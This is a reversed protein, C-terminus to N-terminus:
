SVVAAQRSSRESVRLFENAKKLIATTQEPWDRERSRFPHPALRILGAAAQLMIAAPDGAYGSLFEQWLQEADIRADRLGDRELHAVFTGADSAPDGLGAEDFDIIGIGTVDVVVQKAYFDGHVPMAPVIRESLARAIHTALRDVETALEPIVWGVWEASRAVARAEDRQTRVRLDAPNARTQMDCLAAGTERLTDNDCEGRAILDHLLTGRLWESIVVGHRRSRGVRQPCRVLGTSSFARSAVNANVFGDASHVKIVARPDGNMCLRGVYRREPKLRIHELDATWLEANRGACRQLLAPRTEANWLRPLVALLDDSPAFQISVALDSFWLRRSDNEDVKDQVKATKGFDATRIAKASVLTRQDGHRLEYGVLCSSQPKHRVYQIVARSGALEPRHDALLEVFREPDLVHELGPLSPREREVFELDARSLM